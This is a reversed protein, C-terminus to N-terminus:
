YDGRLVITSYFSESSDIKSKSNVTLTIKIAMGKTTIIQSFTLASITLNDTNLNGTFVDNEFLQVNSNDLIFEMTKAVGADNKTNIKLDNVSISAVGTARRVERSIREMIDGGKMVEAYTGTEKFSKTMTLISNIVALSVFSFLAVYFILEVISYGGNKKNYKIFKM